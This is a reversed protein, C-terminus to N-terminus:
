RKYTWEVPSAWTVRVDVIPPANFSILTFHGKKSGPTLTKLLRRGDATDLVCERNIFERPPGGERRVFIIENDRYAPYNSDGRVKFAAYDGYVGPPLDVEEIGGPGVGEDAPIVVCGAGVYGSVPIKLNSSSSGEGTLLWQWNVRFAGAYLQARALGFGRSGNEHALYTPIVWGFRRAATTADAFGAGIRAERLRKAQEGNM